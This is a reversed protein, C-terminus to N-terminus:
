TDAVAVVKAAAKGPRGRARCGKCSLQPSPMPVTGTAYRALFASVPAPPGVVALLVPRGNKTRREQSEEDLTRKGGMVSV